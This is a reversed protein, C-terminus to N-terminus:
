APTAEEEAETERQVLGCRRCKLDETAPAFPALFGVLWMAVPMEWRRIRRLDRAGCRQCAPARAAGESQVERLLARARFAEADPVELRYGGLGVRMEPMVSLAQEDPLTADLGHSRLFGRAIQAEEADFFVGVEAM